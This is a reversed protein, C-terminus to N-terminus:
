DMHETAINVSIYHMRMLILTSYETPKSGFMVEYNAIMKKVYSAAGWALTGDQDHFFDGGLHYYPEGVGNLKFNYTETLSQFFQEPHTGICM